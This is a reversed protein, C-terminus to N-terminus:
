LPDASSCYYVNATTRRRGGEVRDILFANGGKSFTSKKLRNKVDKFSGDWVNEEEITAIQKCDPTATYIQVVKLENETLPSTACGFLSSCVFLIFIYNKFM